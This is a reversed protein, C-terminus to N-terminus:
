KRMRRAKAPPATKEKADKLMERANERAADTVRTGALMRAIEDIRETEDIEAVGVRTRGAKVDKSVVFHNDALSAIQPQHTVCLVQQSRSLDKLRLGVAEAVRGGIGVDIEDFVATKRADNHRVTTKLILMLRSAEGGSAVRALPKPSEGANASFFFEVRDFGKPTFSRDASIDGTNLRSDPSGGAAAPPVSLEPGDIRVKFKAKELAVAKLNTEVEKEFKAAAAVRADHLRTAANIYTKRDAALQKRLEDERLDATEINNLREESDALHALIIQM